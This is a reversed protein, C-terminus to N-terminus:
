DNMIKEWAISKSASFWDEFELEELFENEITDHEEQHCKRCIAILDSPKEDMWNRYHLHHVESAKAKNCRRCTHSDRNLIIQRLAKWQDSDYYPHSM